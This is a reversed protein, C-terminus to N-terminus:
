RWPIRRFSSIGIVKKLKLILPQQFFVISTAKNNLSGNLKITKPSQTNLFQNLIPTSLRCNTVNRPKHMLKIDIETVVNKDLPFWLKLSHKNPAM